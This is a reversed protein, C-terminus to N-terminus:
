VKAIQILQNSQFYFIEEQRDFKMLYFDSGDEYRSLCRRFAIRLGLKSRCPARSCFSSCIASCLLFDTM